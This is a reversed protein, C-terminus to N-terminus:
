KQAVIIIAASTEPDFPSKTYDGFKGTAKFNATELASVLDNFYKPALPDSWSNLTAEGERLETHFIVQGNDVWEYKRHFTRGDELTKIPFDSAQQARFRDWNVVQLIFSGGSNLLDYSNKLFPALESTPLYSLSNGVCFMAEYKKRLQEIQSFSYHYFTGCKQIKAQRIMEASYDIGTAQYGRQSLSDVYDGPGCGLDLVSSGKEGLFEPLFALFDQNLPFIELYIKTIDDYM